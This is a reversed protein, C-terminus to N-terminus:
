LAYSLALHLTNQTDTAEFEGEGFRTQGTYTSSFRRLTYGLLLSMQSLRLADEGRLINIGLYADAEVGFASLDTDTQNSENTSLGPLIEVQAGLIVRDNLMTKRAGLRVLASIYRHGTYSLNQEVTVSTAQLGVATEFLFSPSVQRVLSFAGAGVVMESILERGREPSVDQNVGSAYSGDFSLGVLADIALFRLFFIDLSGQGGVMTSPKHEVTQGPANITLSRTSLLPGVRLEVQGEAESTPPEPEKDEVVVAVPAPEDGFEDLEDFEDALAMSPWLVCMVALSPLLTKKM